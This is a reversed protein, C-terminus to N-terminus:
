ARWHELSLGILEELRQNRDRFCEVLYRRDEESCPPIDKAIAKAAWPRLFAPIMSKAAGIVAKRATRSPIIAAILRGAANYQYSRNKHAEESAVEFDAPEAGLFAFCRNAAMEPDRVLDEFLLFLFSDLPFHRLYHQIQGYYDSGRLYYSTNTIAERFDATEDGNRVHHWYASYTRSVPDRLLYIFKADPNTAHIREPVDLYASPGKDRDAPFRETPALTYGPTADLFINSEPGRFCARYWDTGKEWHRTFFAPEKSEPLTIAPHQDLLFALSTTGAKQAGILFAEPPFAM